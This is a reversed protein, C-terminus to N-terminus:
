QTISLLRRRGSASGMFRGAQEDGGDALLQAGGALGDGGGDAGQPVVGDGLVVEGGAVAFQALPQPLLDVGALAEDLEDAVAVAGFRGVHVRVVAADGVGLELEEVGEALAFLGPDDDDALAAVAVLRGVLEVQRAVGVMGVRGAVLGLPTPELGVVQGPQGPLIVEAVGRGAVGLQLVEDQAQAILQALQPLPTFALLATEGAGDDGDEQAQQDQAAAAPPDILVKM